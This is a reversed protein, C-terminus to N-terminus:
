RNSNRQNTSPIELWTWFLKEDSQNRIIQSYVWRTKKCRPIEICERVAQMGAQNNTQCVNKFNQTRRVCRKFYFHKSLRITWLRILPAFKLILAAYQVIYHHKLKLKHNPFMEKRTELYEVILVSLVAVSSPAITPACKLDELEKLQVMLQWIPDDTDTGKWRSYYSSAEPSFLKRNGQWRDDKQCHWFHLESM